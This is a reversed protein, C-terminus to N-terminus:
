AATTATPKAAHAPRVGTATWWLKGGVVRTGNGDRAQRQEPASVGVRLRNFEVPTGPPISRSPDEGTITVEIVEAVARMGNEPLYQVAAQVLWKREGDRTIQQTDTGFENKPGTSMVIPPAAFTEGQNVSITGPM